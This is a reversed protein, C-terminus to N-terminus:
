ENENPFAYNELFIRFIVCRSYSPLHQGIKVLLLWRGLVIDPGAHPWALTNDCRLCVARREAGYHFLEIRLDCQRHPTCIKHVCFFSKSCVSVEDMALLSRGVSIQNIYM